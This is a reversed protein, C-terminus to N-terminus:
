AGKSAKPGRKLPAKKAKKEKKLPRTTNQTGTGGGGGGGTGGGVRITGGQDGSGSMEMRRSDDRGRMDM